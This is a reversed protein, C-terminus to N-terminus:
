MSMAVPNRENSSLDDIMSRPMVIMRAFHHVITEDRGMMEPLNRARGWDSIVVHRALMRAIAMRPSYPDNIRLFTSTLQTPNVEDWMGLRPNQLMSEIPVPPKDIEFVAILEAAIKELESFKDNV